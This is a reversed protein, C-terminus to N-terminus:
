GFLEGLGEGATDDEDEDEEPEPEDEAEEEPEEEAEEAPAGAAGAAPAPAAGGFATDAIADEIDVDELAAVLARVRSEDVEVNAAELVDRVNDESIERDAEHLILAAYVYEM